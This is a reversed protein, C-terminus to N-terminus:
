RNCLLSHLGSGTAGEQQTDAPAPLRGGPDGSVGFRQQGGDLRDLRPPLGDGEVPVQGGLLQLLAALPQLPQDPPDRLPQVGPAVLHQGGAVGPGVVGQQGRRLQVPLQGPAQLVGPPAPQAGAEPAVQGEEEGDVGVQGALPRQVHVAPLPEPPDPHQRVAPRRLRAGRPRGEPQFEGEGPRVPAGRQPHEGAQRQRRGLGRALEAGEQVPRQARAARFREEQQQIERGDGPRLRPGRRLRGGGLPQEGGQLGPQFARRLAGGEEGQPLRQPLGGVPRGGARRLRGGEGAAGGGGAGSHSSSGGRGQSGAARARSRLTWRCRRRGPSSASPIRRSRRARAGPASSHSAAGEGDRGTRASLRVVPRATVAEM